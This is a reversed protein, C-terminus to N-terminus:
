RRRRRAPPRMMSLAGRSTRQVEFLTLGFLFARYSVDPFTRDIESMLAARTTNRDILEAIVEAIHEATECEAETLAPRVHPAASQHHPTSLVVGEARRPKSVPQRATTCWAFLVKGM